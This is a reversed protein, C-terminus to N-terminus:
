YDLSWLLAVTKSDDSKSCNHSRHCSRSCNGDSQERAGRRSTRGAQDNLIRRGIPNGTSNFCALSVPGVKAEAGTFLLPDGQIAARIFIAPEM